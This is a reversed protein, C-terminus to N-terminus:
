VDKSAIIIDIHSLVITGGGGTSATTSIGSTNPTGLGAQVVVDAGAGATSSGRELHTHPPMDATSITFGAPNKGAASGVNGSQIYRLVASDQLAANRTWLTPAANQRFVALTGSPVDGWAKAVPGTVYGTIQGSNIYFDGVQPTIPAVTPVKFAGTSTGPDSPTSGDQHRAIFALWADRTWVVANRIRGAGLSVAESDAPVLPDIVSM